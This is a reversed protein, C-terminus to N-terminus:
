GGKHEISNLAVHVTTSYSAGATTKSTKTPPFGCYELQRLIQRQHKTGKRPKINHEVLFKHYEKKFGKDALLLAGYKRFLNQLDRIGRQYDNM